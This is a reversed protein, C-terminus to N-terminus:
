SQRNSKMQRLFNYVVKKVRDDPRDTLTQFRSLDLRDIQLSYRQAKGAIKEAIRQWASQKENKLDVLRISGLDSYWIVSLIGSADRVLMRHRTLLIFESIHTSAPTLDIFGVPQDSNEVRATDIAERVRAPFHPEVYCDPADDFSIVPKPYHRVPTVFEVDVLPTTVPSEFHRCLAEYASHIRKFRDEADRRKSEDNPFRDPHWRKAAARYAKHLGSKSAPPSTVGLLRFHDLCVRCRCAM